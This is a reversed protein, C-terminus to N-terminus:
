LINGDYNFTDSQMFMLWLYSLPNALGLTILNMLQYLWCSGDVM